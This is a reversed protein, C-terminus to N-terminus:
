NNLISFQKIIELAMSNKMHKKFEIKFNMLFYSKLLKNGLDQGFIKLHLMKLNM